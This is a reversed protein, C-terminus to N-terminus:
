RFLARTAASREAPNAAAQDVPSGAKTTGGARVEGPGGVGDRRGVTEPPLVVAARVLSLPLIGEWGFLRTGVMGAADERVELGRVGTAKWPLPDNDM